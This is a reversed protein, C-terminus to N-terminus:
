FPFDSYTSIPFSSCPSESSSLLAICLTYVHLYKCTVKFMYPFLTSSIFFCMLVSLFAILDNFEMKHSLDIMLYM